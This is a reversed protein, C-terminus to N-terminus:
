VKALEKFEVAAAMRASLDLNKEMLVAVPVDAEVDASVDVATTEPVCMVVGVAAHV